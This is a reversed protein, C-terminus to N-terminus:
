PTADVFVPRGTVGLQVTSTVTDAGASGGITGPSLVVDAVISPGSELPVFTVSVTKGENEHLYRLLGTPALDQAFGLTATWTAAGQNTLTHGGIGRWESRPVSPDFQVQSVAATYENEGIDFRASKLAYPKTLAIPPM